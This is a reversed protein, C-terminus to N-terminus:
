RKECAVGEKDRDLGKNYSLARHYERTDRKWTTVPRGGAAVEDSANARGVSFSM